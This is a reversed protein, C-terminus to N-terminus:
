RGARVWKGRGLSKVEKSDALRALNRSIANMNSVGLAAAIEKPSSGTVPASDLARLIRSPLSDALRRPTFPLRQGVLDSMAQYLGALERDIERKEEEKQEIMEALETIRTRTPTPDADNM